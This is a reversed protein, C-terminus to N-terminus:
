MVAIKNVANELSPFTSTSPPATLVVFRSSRSSQKARVDCGRLWVQLPLHTRAPPHDCVCVRVHMPHLHRCKATDHPSSLMFLRLSDAHVARSRWTPRMKTENDITRPHKRKSQLLPRTIEPSRLHQGKRHVCLLLCLNFM